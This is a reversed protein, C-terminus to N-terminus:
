EKSLIDGPQHLAESLAEKLVQNELRLRKLEELWAALQLHENACELCGGARITDELSDCCISGQKKLEEAKEHCHNIAEDLTMM